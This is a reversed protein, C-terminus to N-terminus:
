ILARSEEVLRISLIRKVGLPSEWLLQVAALLTIESVKAFM